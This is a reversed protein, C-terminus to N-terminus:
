RGIKQKPPGKLHGFKNKNKDEQLLFPWFPSLFLGMFFFRCSVIKKRVIQKQCPSKRNKNQPRVKFERQSFRVFVCYLFILLM